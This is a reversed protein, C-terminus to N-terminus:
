LTPLDIRVVAPRRLTPNQSNHRDKIERV